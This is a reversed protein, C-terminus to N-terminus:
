ERQKEEKKHLWVTEKSSELVKVMGSSKPKNGELM